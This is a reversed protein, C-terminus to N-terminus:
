LGSCSTCFKHQVAGGDGWVWVDLCPSFHYTQSFHLILSAFTSSMNDQSTDPVPLHSTQSRKEEGQSCRSHMLQLRGRANYMNAAASTSCHLHSAFVSPEPLDWMKARTWLSISICVHVCQLPPWSKRMVGLCFDILFKTHKQSCVCMCTSM